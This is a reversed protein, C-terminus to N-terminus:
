AHDREGDREQAPPLERVLATYIDGAFGGPNRERLLHASELATEFERRQNLRAIVLAEIRKRRRRDSLGHLGLNRWDEEPLLKEVVLALEPPLEHVTEHIRDNEHELAANSRWWMGGICLAFGASWLTMSLPFSLGTPPFGLEAPSFSGLSVTKVPDLLPLPISSLVPVPLSMVEWRHESGQWTIWLRFVLMVALVGVVGPRLHPGPSHKRGRRRSLLLVLLLMEFFMWSGGPALVGSVVFTVGFFGCLVSLASVPDRPLSDSVKAQLLTAILAIVAGIGLTTFGTGVWSGRGDVQLGLLVGGAAIMACAIALQVEAAHVPRDSM